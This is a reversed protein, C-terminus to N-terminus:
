KSRHFIQTQLLLLKNKRHVHKQSFASCCCCMQSCPSYYTKRIIFLSYWFYFYSLSFFLHSLRSFLLCVFSAKESILAILADAIDSRSVCLNVINLINWCPIIRINGHFCLAPLSCFGLLLCSLIDAHRPMGALRPCADREPKEYTLYSSTWTIALSIINVHLWDCLFFFFVRFTEPLLQINIHTLVPWLRCSTSFYTYLWLLPLPVFENGLIEILICM